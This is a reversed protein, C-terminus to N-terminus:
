YDQVLRVNYGDSRYCYDVGFGDSQNGIYYAEQDNSYTSTWINPKSSSLINGNYNYRHYGSVLFVVGATELMEWDNDSIVNVTAFPSNDNVSNLSYVDSVWNDPLLLYGYENHVKAYAFRQNSQTSRYYLLYEGEDKTLTRWTNATNGGNSIANYVGWDYNTGAINNNGNGYDTPNTSTMYPYKGNYGSTGWGFIDIWGSYTASANANNEGECYYQNAAFRWIGTSAQYQLLGQSFRVQKTASVSFLGYLAGNPPVTTTFVKQEGYEEIGEIGPIYGAPMYAYARVYYTTNPSLGTMECTFSGSGIGADVKSDNYTPNPNTSYCVGRFINDSVNGGCKASTLTINTVNDTSITINITSNSTTFSRQVGYATGYSNTAYARVYYTTNASLGTINSTFIGTGTGDNTHYGSVTPNQITSWCVGRATVTGSGSSTVNGGCTATSSTIDSVVVTTVTPSSGSQATKFTKVTGYATGYSNTAYARVYYTTNPSLGTIYSTYSGAGVSDTTHSGTVMPYQSTSWCVGKATVFSSGVSTVNGGCMATTNTINSVVATTVSPVDGNLNSYYNIDPLPHKKCAGILVVTLLVLVYTIKKM